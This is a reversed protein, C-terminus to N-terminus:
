RRKMAVQKFAGSNSLLIPSHFIQRSIIASTGAGAYVFVTDDLHPHDYAALSYYKLVYRLASTGITAAADVLCFHELADLRQKV